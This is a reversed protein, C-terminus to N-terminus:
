VTLPNEQLSPLWESLLIPTKPTFMWARLSNVESCANLLYGLLLLPEDRSRSMFVNPKQTLLHPGLLSLLHGGLLRGLHHFHCNSLSEEKLSGSLTRDEGSHQNRNETVAPSLASSFPLSANTDGWHNGEKIIGRKGKRPTRSQSIKQM